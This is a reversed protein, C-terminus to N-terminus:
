QLSASDNKKSVGETSSSSQKKAAAERRARHKASMSQNIVNIADLFIRRRDRRVEPNDWPCTSFFSVLHSFNRIRAIDMPTRDNLDYVRMSASSDVLIKVCNLHGQDAALHLPTWGRHDTVNMHAGHACLFSVHTALGQECAKHMATCGNSADVQNIEAGARLLLQMMPLGGDNTRVAAKHLATVNWHNQHGDPNAGKILAMKASKLDSARAAKYLELDLESQQFMHRRHTNRELEFWATVHKHGQSEAITIADDGDDGRYAGVVAGLKILEEVTKLFGGKAAFYLERNIRKQEQAQWEAQKKALRKREKIMDKHCQADWVRVARALDEARLRDREEERENLLELESPEPPEKSGGGICCAMNDGGSECGGGQEDEPPLDFVFACFISDSHDLPYDITRALTRKQM